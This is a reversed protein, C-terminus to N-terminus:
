NAKELFSFRVGLEINGGTYNKLVNSSSTYIASLTLKNKITLGAGLTANKSSHYIGFVNLNNRFSLNAGADIIHDYGKIGRFAVKPELTLGDDESVTLKYSASAFLMAKDVMESEDKGFFSVMNPFAGQITLREDTYAVGFDADFNTRAANVLSLDSPDGNMNTKDVRRNWVGASLGFHLKRSDNLSIHYSYTGRASTTQLLGAEENNIILGVGVKDSFGYEGSLYQGVPGDPVSNWERRYGGNLLLNQQHAAMAPNFLYQNQFYSAGFPNLQASSTQDLVLLASLMFTVLVNRRISKNLLKM